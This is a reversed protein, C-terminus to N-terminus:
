SLLFAILFGEGLLSERSRLMSSPLNGAKAQHGDSRDVANGTLSTYPLYNSFFLVPGPCGPFIYTHLTHFLILFTNFVHLFTYSLIFLVDLIYLFYLFHIFLIFFTYFHLFIYLFHIFIYLFIYFHIFIYLFHIFIYLFTYCRQSSRCAASSHSFDQNCFKWLDADCGYLVGFLDAGCCDQDTHSM